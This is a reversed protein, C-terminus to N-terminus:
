QVGWLDVPQSSPFQREAHGACESFGVSANDPYARPSLSGNANYAKAFTYNVGWFLLKGLYEPPQPQAM